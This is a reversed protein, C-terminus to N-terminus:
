GLIGSVKGCSVCCYSGDLTMLQGVDVVGVKKHQLACEIHCSFGCTDEDDHESSCVLWLSPDKNVDFTHCICCSCRRCFKDDSSLTARCGSNRCILSKSCGLDPTQELALPVRIPNQQKRNKKNSSPQNPTSYPAKRSELKKNTRSPKSAERM